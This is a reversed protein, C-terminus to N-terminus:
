ARNILWLALSYSWPIATSIALACTWLPRGALKFGAGLVLLAVALHGASYALEATVVHQILQAAVGFSVLLLGALKAPLCALYARVFRDGLGGLRHLMWLEVPILALMPAFIAASLKALTRPDDLGMSGCAAATGAVGFAVLAASLSARHLRAGPDM